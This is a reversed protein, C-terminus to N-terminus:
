WADMQRRRRKEALRQQRQKEAFTPPLDPYDPTYPDRGPVGWRGRMFWTDEANAKPDRTQSEFHFLECNAVFLIRYDARLIKYCFDVDNFSEPLGEALGGVKLFTDRRMAVCAGTVGSVERNVVLMGFRGGDVNPMLRCPHHYGGRLFALGVHQIATSSFLLKAGTLGVDPEELPAVLADLWESTRVLVDDNLVVIREGSSALVGINVKRSYNFKERFPVLVLRPGAIELLEALVAKPTPEDYVVVIELREHSTQELASRVADVVLARRRGWVLSSSGRTPIVISVVREAPLRRHILHPGFPGVSVTADIGCRELHEEVARRGAEVAYPKAGADAAASGQIARWHYLVEPIHVIRRARETVRLILDYDQSGDFGERFGGVQRVLSTRLVSLHSCYNQSRLREPSWTPKEFRDYFRGADDIKDEDSYLYDVDEWQAIQEANRRLAHKALLDDHDLLVIFEGTAAAIGDNSAKVIHGNTEREVVKIRADRVAYSRLTERVKPDPSCDDVLILEWDAYSQALVSDIAATLVGIPPNYVPTVISFFPTVGKDGIM